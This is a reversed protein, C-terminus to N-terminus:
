NKVVALFIDDYVECECEWEEPCDCPKNLKNTGNDYYILTYEFEYDPINEVRELEEFSCKSNDNDIGALEETSLIWRVSDDNSRFEYFTQTNGHGDNDNFRTYFRGKIASIDIKEGERKPNVFDEQAVDILKIEDNYSLEVVAINNDEIRDVIAQVSKIDTKGTTSMGTSGIVISMILIIINKM